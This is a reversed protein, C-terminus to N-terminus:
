SALPESSRPPYATRSLSALLPIVIVFGSSIVATIPSSNALSFVPTLLVCTVLGPPLGRAASGTVWLLVLLAALEVAVGPAGWNAYGDALFNSNAAVAPNGTLQAGVMFASSQEYPSSTLGALFSDAWLVKPQGTFYHVYASPLLGATISLRDVFLATLATSQRFVDIVTAAASFGAFSAILAGPHLGLTRDVFWIAAIFVVSLLAMKYGTASYVIVQSAIALVAISPRRQYLALALLGPAFGNGLARVAYGLTAGSSAVTNRYTDRINYAADLNVQAGTLGAARIVYADLALACVALIIVTAQSSLSLLPVVGSAPRQFLRNTLLCAVVGASSIWSAQSATAIDIMQPMFILPVYMLVFLIVAIPAMEGDTARPLSLAGMCTGILTLVYILPDPDRYREGLYGFTPSLISSYAFHLIFCYALTPVVRQILHVLSVRLLATSEARPHANAATM